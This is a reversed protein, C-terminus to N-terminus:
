RAAGVPPRVAFPRRALRRGVIFGVVPILVAYSLLVVATAFGLLSTAGDGGEVAPQVGFRAIAVSVAGGFALL